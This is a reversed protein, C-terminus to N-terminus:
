TYSKWEYRGSSPLSVTSSSRSYFSPAFAAPPIPSDKDRKDECKCQKWESNLYCPNSLQTFEDSSFSSLARNPSFSRNIPYFKQFIFTMERVRLIRLITADTFLGASDTSIEIIMYFLIHLIKKKIFINLYIM